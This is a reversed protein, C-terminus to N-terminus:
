EPSLGVRQMLATDGQILSLKQARTLRKVAYEAKLAASHSGAQASFKLTLPGRGRLSRAGKKPDHSHESFRRQVDTSIGCYLSGTNTAILYLWWVSSSDASVM